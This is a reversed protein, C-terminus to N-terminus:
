ELRETGHGIGEAGAHIHTHQPMPSVDITHGIGGMRLQVLCHHFVQGPTAAPLPSGLDAERDVALTTHDVDQGPVSLAAAQQDDLELGLQGVWLLQRGRHPASESEGPRDSALKGPRRGRRARPDYDPLAAGVAASATTVRAEQAGGKRSITAGQSAPQTIWDPM